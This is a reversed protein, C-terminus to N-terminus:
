VVLLDGDLWWYIMMLDNNFWWQIVILDGDLDGNFWGVFMLLCWSDKRDECDAPEMAEAESQFHIGKAGKLLQRSPCAFQGSIWSAGSWQILSWYSDVLVQGQVRSVLFYPLLINITLIITIYFLREQEWIEWVIWEKKAHPGAQSSLSPNPSSAEMAPPHSIRWRSPILRGSPAGSSHCATAPTCGSTTPSRRARTTSSWPNCRRRSPLQSDLPPMRWHCHSCDIPSSHHLLILHIWIPWQFSFQCNPVLFPYSSLSTITQQGRMPHWRQCYWDWGAIINFVGM